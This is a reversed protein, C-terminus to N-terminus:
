LLTFCSKKFFIERSITISTSLKYKGTCVLNRDKMLNLFKKLQSYLSPPPTPSLTFKVAAVMTARVFENPNSLNDAMQTLVQDNIIAFKGLCEAVM